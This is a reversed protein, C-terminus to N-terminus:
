PGQRVCRVTFPFPVLLQKDGAVSAGGPFRVAEAAEPRAAISTSAWYEGAVSGRFVGADLGPEVNRDDVLSRLEVVNPVYWDIFGAWASDECYALAGYWDTWTPYGACDDGTEGAPCGQWVLGTVADAVVPFGAVPVSRTFRPMPSAVYGSGDRVCRVAGSLATDWCDAYGDRGFAVFWARPPRSGACFSSSWYYSVLTGPFAAEDIAPAGEVGRDMISLLEPESPLRWDSLGAWSTADCYGLGEAWTYQWEGAFGDCAAGSMGAACGMWVLGSVNDVVVPEGSVVETRTFREGVAHTTDWGYQADQGCYDTTGCGASGATGPCSTTTWGSDDACFRQGTDPLPWNPGPANCAADGCGPSVCNGYSCIDYSRDPVTITECPTFNPQGSCDAVVCIGWNENCALGASACGSDDICPAGIGCGTEDTLGDCDDDGANCVEGPPECESEWRCDACARWGTSGCSTACARAPDSDCEEGSEVVGNGCVAADDTDGAADGVSGDADGVLLPPGPCGLVSAVILAAAPVRASWPLDGGGV